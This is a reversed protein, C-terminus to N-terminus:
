KGTINNMNLVDEIAAIIPSPEMTHPVQTILTGDPKLFYFYSSHDVVYDMESDELKTKKFIVGYNDAVAKTTKIPASFGEINKHFYQAYQYATNATDREPDISIFMPRIRALQEASIHNLASSLMALSTPCVDPCHTYGFYVVRIRKDTVDFIHTPMDDKGNFVPDKTIQKTAEQQQELAVESQM